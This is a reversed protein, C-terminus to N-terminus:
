QVPEALVLGHVRVVHLEGLGQEIPLERDVCVLLALAIMAGARARCVFSHM